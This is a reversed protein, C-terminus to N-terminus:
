REQIDQDVVVRKIEQCRNETLFSERPERKAHCPMASPISRVVFVIVQYILCAFMLHLSERFEQKNLVLGQDVLPM